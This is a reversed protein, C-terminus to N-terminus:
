RGAGVMEKAKRGANERGQKNQGVGTSDVGSQMHFKNRRPALKLLVGVMSAFAGKLFGNRKFARGDALMDFMERFMALWTGIRTRDVAVTERAIEHCYRCDTGCVASDCDFRKFHDLFGDLARNDISFMDRMEMIKGVTKLVSLNIHRSKLLYRFPNDLTGEGKSSMYPYTILDALNGEYRRESYAKVMRELWESSKARGSLKFVDFGIDEYHHIDEPRIFRGKIFEVPDSLRKFACQSACYDIYFGGTASRSASAHAVAPMHATPFACQYLCMNTAFIELECSVARRIQELIRFNRNMDQMVMIRDAGLDEWTKAKTPSTTMCFTSMSVKIRPFRKKMLDLMYPTAVVVGDIGAEDLQEIFEVLRKNHARTWELNSQCVSNLLYYYHIGCRHAETVSKKVDDMTASALMFSPRGGGLIDVALKGFISEVEQYRALRPILDIDGNYAVTFRTNSRKM